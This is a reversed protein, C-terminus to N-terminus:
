GFMEGCAPSKHAKKNNNNNNNVKYDGFQPWNDPMPPMHTDHGVKFVMMMGAESHFDIHCHLVWYGPNNAHFRLVSYGASPNMLTDKIPPNLLNRQLSGNRDMEKVVDLSLADGLKEQGLVAFSHGHM